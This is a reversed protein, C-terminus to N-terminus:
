LCLFIQMAHAFQRAPKGSCTQIKFLIVSFDFVRVRNEGKINNLMTAFHSLFGIFRACHMEIKTPM